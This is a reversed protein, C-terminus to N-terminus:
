TSGPTPDTGAVIYFLKGDSTGVTYAGNGANASPNFSISNVAAPLTYTRTLAPGTGNNEDIEYVKGNAAGILLVGNRSLPAYSFVDGSTGPRFPYNSNLV